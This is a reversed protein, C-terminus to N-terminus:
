LGGKIVEVKQHSKILKHDEKQHSKILKHDEYM